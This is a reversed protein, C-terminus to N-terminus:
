CKAQFHNRETTVNAREKAPMMTARFVLFPYQSIAVQAFQPFFVVKPRFRGQDFFDVGRVKRGFRWVILTKSFPRLTRLTNHALHM